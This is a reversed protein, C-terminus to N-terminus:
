LLVASKGTQQTASKWIPPAQRLGRGGFIRGGRERRKGRRKGAIIERGHGSRAQGCKKAGEHKEREEGDRIKDGGGVGRFGRGWGGLFFGLAREFFEDVGGVEFDFEDGVLRLELMGDREADILLAAEEDALAVTKRVVDAGNERVEVPEIVIEGRGRMGRQGIVDVAAEAGVGGGRRALADGFEDAEEFRAAAVALEIVGGDEGGAEVFGVGAGGLADERPIAVDPEGGRGIDPPEFIVVAFADLALRNQVAEAHMETVRSVLQVAQSEAGVAFQVEAHAVASKVHLAVSADEGAGIAAAHQAAIEVAGVGLQDRPAQAIRHRQGEIVAAIKKDAVVVGVDAIARAPQLNDLAGVVAPADTKLVQLARFERTRPVALAEPVHGPGALGRPMQRRQAVGARTRAAEREIGARAKRATVVAVKKEGIPARGRGAADEREGITRFARGVFDGLRRLEQPFHEDGVHLEADLAAEIEAVPHLAPAARALAADVADELRGDHVAREHLFRFFDETFSHLFAGGGFEGREERVAIM